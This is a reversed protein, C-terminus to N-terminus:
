LEDGDLYDLPDIWNDIYGTLYAEVYIALEIFGDKIIIDTIDSMNKVKITYLIYYGCKDENPECVELYSEEPDRDGEHFKFLVNKKLKENFDYWKGDDNKDEKIFTSGGKDIHLDQCIIFEKEKM